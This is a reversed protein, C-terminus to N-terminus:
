RKGTLSYRCMVASSPRADADHAGEEQRGLAGTLPRRALMALARDAAAPLEVDSYLSTAGASIAHDGAANM